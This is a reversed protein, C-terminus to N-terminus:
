KQKLWDINQAADAAEPHTQPYAGVFLRFADLDALAGVLEVTNEFGDEHARFTGSEAPPDGRLAVLGTVGTDTYSRAINLTEDRTADVCTLHAAVDCGTHKHLVRTAEQTLTRTTGGAGYTVSMFRPNLPALTNVTDWLRYAGEFNQPPFFEFSIQPRSM